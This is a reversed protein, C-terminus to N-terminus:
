VWLDPQRHINKKRLDFGYRTNLHVACFWQHAVVAKMPELLASLLTAAFM